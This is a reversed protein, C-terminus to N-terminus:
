KVGELEDPLTIRPGWTFSGLSHMIASGTAYVILDGAMSYVRVPRWPALWAKNKGWYFGPEKPTQDTM